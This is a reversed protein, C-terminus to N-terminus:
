TRPSRARIGTRDGVAWIAIQTRDRLGLKSLINSIYNRVTGESLGLRATIEKNSMGEGILGVIALESRNLCAPAETANAEPGNPSRADPEDRRAKSRSFHDFVKMAVEPNMLVGGGHVTRIASVLEDTPITKLLYGRAGSRLARFVYEDDDFTSLVIVSCEARESLIREMCAVGDMGPLRVDMLVIDPRRERAMAIAEEADKAAGVVEIGEKLGLMLELSERILAQDDVIMVRIM